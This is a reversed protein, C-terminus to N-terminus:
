RTYYDRLEDLRGIEHDYEAQLREITAPLEAQRDRLEAQMAGWRDSFRLRLFRGDQYQTVAEPYHARVFRVHDQVSGHRSESLAIEIRELEEQADRLRAGFTQYVQAHATQYQSELSGPLMGRLHDVAETQERVRRDFSTADKQLATLKAQADAIKKELKPGEADLVQRANEAAAISARRDESTGAVAQKGIVGRLRFLERRTDKKDWGRDRHFYLLEANNPERDQAIIEHLIAESEDVRAREDEAIDSLVSYVPPPTGDHVLAETPDTATTM